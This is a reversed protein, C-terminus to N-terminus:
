VITYILHVWLLSTMYDNSGTYVNLCPNFQKIKQGFYYKNKSSSGLWNQGGPWPELVSWVLFICCVARIDMM